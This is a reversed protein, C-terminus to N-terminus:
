RKAARRQRKDLVAVRTLGERLGDDHVKLRALYGDRRSNEDAVTLAEYARKRADDAARVDKQAAAVEALAAQHVPRKRELFQTSKLRQTDDNPLEAAAMLRDGIQALIAEHDSILGAVADSVKRKAELIAATKDFQLRARQHTRTAAVISELAVAPTKIIVEPLVSAIRAAIAEAEAMAEREIQDDEADRAAQIEAAKAQVAADHERTLSALEAEIRTAPARALEAADLRKQCDEIKAALGDITEPQASM